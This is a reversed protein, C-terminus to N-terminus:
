GFVIRLQRESATAIRCPKVLGEADVQLEFRDPVANGAGVDLEAGLDSLARVTCDIPAGGDQPLIRGRAFVRRRGDLSPQTESDWVECRSGGDRQARHLAADARALLLDVSDTPSTMAAIGFSATVQFAGDPGAHRLAELTSRLREAVDSAGSRGTMPLLVAFAEDGMRGIVDSTRLGSQLTRACEALIADGRESGYRKTVAALGHLGLMLCGLDQKHRKALALARGAEDQFANKTLAGTLADVTTYQRLELVTMVLKGLDALTAADAPGFDRAETDMACLTGIPEGSPAILPVGAYFRLYPAGTVVPNDRFRDDEFADPVVLMAKARITQNCFSASRPLEPESLGDRSKFWQRHGDLFTITSIPVGFVHRTLRTITDFPQEAPTDMVYYRDLAAMRQHEALIDLRALVGLPETGIDARRESLKASM